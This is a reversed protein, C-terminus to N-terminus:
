QVPPPPIRGPAPEVTLDAENGTDAPEPEADNLTKVPSERRVPSGSDPVSAAPVNPQGRQGSSDDIVCGAALCLLPLTTVTMLISPKM